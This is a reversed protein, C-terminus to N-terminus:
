VSPFYIYRRNPFISVRCLHFLYFFLFLQRTLNVYGLQRGINRFLTLSSWFKIVNTCFATLQIREVNKIVFCKIHHLCTAFGKKRKLKREDVESSSRLTETFTTVDFHTNGVCFSEGLKANWTWRFKWSFHAIVQLHLPSQLVQLAISENRKWRVIAKVSQCLWNLQVTTTKLIDNKKKWFITPFGEWDEWTKRM